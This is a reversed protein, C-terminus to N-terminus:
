RFVMEIPRLTDVVANVTYVMGDYLPEETEVTVLINWGTIGLSSLMFDSTIGRAVEDFSLPQEAVTLITGCAAQTGSGSAQPLVSVEMGSELKEALSGSTYCHLVGDKIHGSITVTENLQGFIGWILLGLLLTLAAGLVMWSAPNSVQIYDNLKEPSTIREMSSKKFLKNQM